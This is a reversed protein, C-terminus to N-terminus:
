SLSGPVSADDHWQDDAIRLFKLPVDGARLNIESEPEILHISDGHQLVDGEEGDIDVHLTGELVHYFVPKGRNAAPTPQQQGPEVTVVEGRMLPDLLPGTLDIAAGESSTRKDARTVHVRPKPTRALEILQDIPEQLAEAIVLFSRLRPDGEGTEIKRITSVSLGCSEALRSVSWGKDERRERLREGLARLHDREFSQGQIDQNKSETEGM